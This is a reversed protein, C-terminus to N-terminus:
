RKREWNNRGSNRPEGYADFFIEGHPSNNKLLFKLISCFGSASKEFIGFNSSM